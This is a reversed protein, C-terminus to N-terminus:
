QGLRPARMPWQPVPADAPSIWLPGKQWPSGGEKDPYPRQPTIAGPKEDAHPGSTGYGYSVAGSPARAGPLQSNYLQGTAGTEREAGLNAHVHHFPGDTSPLARTVPRYLNIRLRSGNIIRHPLSPSRWISMPPHVNM